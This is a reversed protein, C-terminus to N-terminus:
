REEQFMNLQLSVADHALRLKRVRLEKRISLLEKKLCDEIERLERDSLSMLEALSM